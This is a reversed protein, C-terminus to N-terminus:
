VDERVKKYKRNLHIFYFLILILILTPMFIMYDAKNELNRIVKGTILSDTENDNIKKDVEGKVNLEIWSGVGTVEDETKFIVAGYYKGPNEGTLCINIEKKDEFQASKTYSIKINLKSASYNYSNLNRSNVMTWRDEGKLKVKGPSFLTLTNCIKEGPNSNIKISPPSIGIETAYSLKISFILINLILVTLFISNSFRNIM